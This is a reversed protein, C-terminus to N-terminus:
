TDDKNQDISDNVAVNSNASAINVGLLVGALISTPLLWNKKLRM